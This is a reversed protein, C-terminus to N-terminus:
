WQDGKVLFTGRGGAMCKAELPQSLFNEQGVVAWKREGNSACPPDRGRNERKIELAPVWPRFARCNYATPNGVLLNLYLSDTLSLHGADIRAKPGPTSPVTPRNTVFFLFSSVDGSTGEVMSGPRQTRLYCGGSTSFLHFIVAKVAPGSTKDKMRWKQSNGERSLLNVGLSLARSEM